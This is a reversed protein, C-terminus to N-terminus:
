LTRFYFRESAEARLREVRADWQPKMRAKCRKILRTIRESRREDAGFLDPHSRLRRLLREYNM